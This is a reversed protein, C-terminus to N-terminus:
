RLKAIPTIRILQFILFPILTLDFTLFIQKMRNSYLETLMRNNQILFIYSNFMEPYNDGFQLHNVQVSASLLFAFSVFIAPISDAVDENKVPNGYYGLYLVTLLNWILLAWEVPLQFLRCFANPHTRFGAYKLHQKDWYVPTALLYSAFNGISLLLELCRWSSMRSRTELSRQGKFKLVSYLVNQKFFIRLGVKPDFSKKSVGFYSEENL